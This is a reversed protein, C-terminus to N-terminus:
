VIYKKLGPVLHLLASLGLSVVFVFVAMPLVSWWRIGFLAVLDILLVHSLYAGFSYQANLTIRRDDSAFNARFAVFVAVAMAMVNLSMYTYFAGSPTDMLRSHWATLLVTAAFGAIGLGYIFGRILPRPPNQYLTHGLVFVFLYCVSVVNINMGQLIVGQFPVKVGLVSLLHVARPLVFFLVGGVWLFIRTRQPSATLKRLLPVFLYLGMILYLFWMHYAGKLFNLPLQSLPAGRLWDLVAYLASWFGFAALIRLINKRCISTFSIEKDPNLFLAGSIMVFVPVAWRTASDLVNFIQWSPEEPHLAEWPRACLHLLIVAFTALLRLGDLENPKRLVAM